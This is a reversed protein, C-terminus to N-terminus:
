EDKLKKLYKAGDIVRGIGKSWPKGNARRSHVSSIDFHTQASLWDIDNEFKLVVYNHSEGLYESFEIEPDEDETKEDEEDEPFLVDLGWADLQEVDWENGLIDMDWNGFGVNDKIVFEDKQEQTLDKIQIVHVEKHNLSKLAKLRMNGGMVVNNEDIVLPRLALMEPFDIISQRLKNFKENTIYRPNGIKEDLSEIDVKKIKNM